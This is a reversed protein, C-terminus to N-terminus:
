QLTLVSDEIEEQALRKPTTKTNNETTTTNGIPKFTGFKSVDTKKSDFLKSEPIVVKPVEGEPYYEHLYMGQGLTNVKTYVNDGSRRYLEVRWDPNEKNGYNVWRKLYDHKLLNSKEKVIMVQNNEGEFRVAGYKIMGGKIKPVLKDDLYNNRYFQDVFVTIDSNNSEVYKSIIPNAIQRYFIEAPIVANFNIFSNNLGSQMIGFRVIDIALKPDSNFLKNFEDTLLNSEPSSLKRSFM